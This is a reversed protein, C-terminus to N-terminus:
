EGIYKKYKKFTPELDRLIFKVTKEHGTEAARKLVCAKIKSFTEEPDNVDIICREREERRMRGWAKEYPEEDDLEFDEITCIGFFTALCGLDFLYKGQLPKEFQLLCSPKESSICLVAQAVALLRWHTEEAGLM